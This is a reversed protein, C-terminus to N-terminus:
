PDHSLTIIDTDSFLEGETEPDVTPLNTMLVSGQLTTTGTVTLTDRTNNVADEQITSLGFSLQAPDIGM